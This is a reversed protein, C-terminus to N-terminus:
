SFSINLVTSRISAGEVKGTEDRCPPWSVCEQPRGDEMWFACSSDGYRPYDRRLQVLTASTTEHCPGSVGHVVFLGWSQSSMGICVNAVWAKQHWSVESDPDHFFYNMVEIEVCVAWVRYVSPLCWLWGCDSCDRSSQLFMHPLCSFTM